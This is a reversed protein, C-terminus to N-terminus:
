REGGKAKNHIASNNSQQEKDQLPQSLNTNESHNVTLIQRKEGPGNKRLNLTPQITASTGHAHEIVMLITTM